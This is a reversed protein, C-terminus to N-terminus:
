TSPALGPELGHEKMKRTLTNRHIGLREAARGIHGQVTALVRRIHDAEVEELSLTPPYGAGLASVALPAGSTASEGLRLDSVRITPGASLVVARDMVNRLERVNGPWTASELRRLAEDSIADIAKGHRRAFDAAFHLALTRIDDSRERLPPLHIQVVALRHYLDERFRGQRTASALDQNTAAVVRVDVASTEDGGVREVKRDELVRLVKAQLLLSMDGIEDLFLTGGHAREFRGVRRAVAGTFAGRAHGFLETELLHEPIAACNVAVFPGRARRSASHLTRAVVEKGTGSEGTVLVTAATDAVQAATEFVGGMKRSGGLLVPSDREAAERARPLPVPRGEDSVAAFRTALEEKDFPERLMGAASIDRALLARELSLDSASILLRGSEPREAVARAVREDVPEVSLSLLTASWSGRALHELFDSLGTSRTVDLGALAAAETVPRAADEPVLVLM